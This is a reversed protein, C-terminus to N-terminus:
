EEVPIAKSDSQRSDTFAARRPVMKCMEQLAIASMLMTCRLLWCGAVGKEKRVARCSWTLRHDVINEKGGRGGSTVRLGVLVSEKPGRGGSPVRQGVVVFLLRKRTDGAVTHEDRLFLM